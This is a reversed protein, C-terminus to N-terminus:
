TLITLAALQTILRRQEFRSPVTAKLNSTKDEERKVVHEPKAAAEGGAGSDPVWYV